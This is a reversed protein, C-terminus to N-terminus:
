NKVKLLAQFASDILMNKYTYSSEIDIPVL